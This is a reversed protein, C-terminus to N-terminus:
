TRFTLRPSLSALLVFHGDNTLVWKNDVLREGHVKEREAVNPGSRKARGDPASLRRTGRTAVFNRRCVYYKKGDYSNDGPYRDAITDEWWDPLDAPTYQPPMPSVGGAQHKKLVAAVRQILASTEGMVVSGPCVKGTGLTFEQHFHVFSRDQGPVNPFDNWPIKRQDAFYATLAVISARAAEDLPTEYNGSIEIAVTQPNVRGVGFRNVFKAGDGYPSSVPGSSEGYYHGNAPDIWEIIKGASAAGDTAQVGVGYETAAHGAHFWSDTGALTGIMRHWVVGEVVIPTASYGIMPNSSDLHSDTHPPKPVKGYTIDAMVPAGNQDPLEPWIAKSRDICTQAPQGESFGWAWVAQPRGHSDTYRIDLDTLKSVEPYNADTVKPIWVRRAWNMGELWLPIDPHLKGEVAAYYCQVHIQAAEDGGPIQFPQVTSDAPIGVGGPNNDEIFRKSTWNATEVASWGVAIAADVGAIACWHFCRQIFDEYEGGAGHKRAFALAQEPNGRSAHLILDTLKMM